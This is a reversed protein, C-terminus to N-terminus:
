AARLCQFAFRLDRRLNYRMEKDKSRLFTNVQRDILVCTAYADRDYDPNFIDSAHDEFYTLPRGRAENPVQLAISMIAQMLENQGVISSLPKKLRKYEGHRRDYFLGYRKLRDEIDFQIRENALLSLLKVPTQSNTAKIIKDRSREDVTIVVRVLLQRNDTDQLTLRVGFIEHSTQLGNVVEPNRITAKNGNISCSSALITVGNNLWWFEEASDIESLSDRIQTNVKNTLGNYDRVNPALIRTNLDGSDSALVDRAYDKIKVLFVTSGDDTAFHKNISVVVESKAIKRAAALLNQCTWFTLKFIADSFQSRVFGQLTATRTTVKDKPKPPTLAKCVYHFTVLLKPDYRLVDAHKQRFRAIADRASSNLYTIEEPQRTYDFLDRAFQTFKEIREEKFGKERTAGSCCM